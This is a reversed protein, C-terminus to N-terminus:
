PGEKGESLACSDCLTRTWGGARPYGPEGCDECVLFSRAEAEEIAADMEPTVGGVYFRLGGFKEKVQHVDGDWGLAELKSVLDDLLSGWGLGVRAKIDERTM